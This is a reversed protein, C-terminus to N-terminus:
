PLSHAQSTDKDKKERKVWDFTIFCILGIGCILIMSYFMIQVNYAEFLFGGILPGLMRGGTAASGVVGQYFGVKHKPALEQAATPVAPWIFIEGITMIIMAMLFGSYIETQSLIYLSIFFLVIGTLLQSKVTPLVKETLFSTFPQALLILGGNITWLLSYSSLSMGLGQMHVSVSTQWQVYTIWCALFGFSIIGLSILGRRQLIRQTQDIANEGNDQGIGKMEARPQVAIRENIGFWIIALFLLYFLGNVFFVITFSFQAVLGGIASGIAVGVNQFVYIVNFTKRGGEPWVGGAMAYMSPFVLGNSFGLLIMIGVYVLFHHFLALCFVSGTALIIGYLITKKGGYRDYLFGGLLNGIVGAGAHLMLVFGATSMTQSLEQTMYISNLPWLFSAGTINILMGLALIWLAKPYEPILKM